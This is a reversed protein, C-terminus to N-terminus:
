VEALILVTKNVALAAVAERWVGHSVDWGKIPPIAVVDCAALMPRCWAEWTRHDLPDIADPAPREAAYEDHVMQASLMIPSVVSLGARTLRWSWASAETAVAISLDLHWAGNEDVARRSYPTALYVLRSLFHRMDTMDIDRRLTVGEYDHLAAWDPASPFDGIM